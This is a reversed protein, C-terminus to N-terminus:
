GEDLWRHIERFRTATDRVQKRIAEKTKYSGVMDRGSKPLLQELFSRQYSELKITPLQDAMDLIDPDQCYRYVRKRLMEALQKFLRANKEFDDGAEIEDALYLLYDYDNPPLIM